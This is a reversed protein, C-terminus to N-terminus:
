LSRGQGGAAKQLAHQKWPSPCPQVSLTPSRPAPLPTVPVCPIDSPPPPAPSLVCTAPSSQLHGAGGWGKLPTTAGEPAAGALCRGGERKGPCLASPLQTSVGPLSVAKAAKQAAPCEWPILNPWASMLLTHQQLLERPPGECSVASALACGSREASVTIAPAGAAVTPWSVTKPICARHESAPPPTAPHPHLGTAGHLKRAM